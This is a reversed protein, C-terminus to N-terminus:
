VARLHVRVDDVDLRPGEQVRSCEHIHVLRIPEVQTRRFRQDVAQQAVKVDTMCSSPRRDGEVGVRPLCSGTGELQADSRSLRQFFKSRLFAEKLM